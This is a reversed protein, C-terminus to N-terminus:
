GMYYTVPRDTMGALQLPPAPTEPTATATALGEGFASAISDPAVGANSAFSAAPVIVVPRTQASVGAIALVPLLAVKRM